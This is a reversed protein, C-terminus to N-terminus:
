RGQAQRFERIANTHRNLDAQYLGFLGQRVPVKHLYDTPFQCWYGSAMETYEIAPLGDELPLLTDCAQNRVYEREELPGGFAQNVRIMGNWSAFSVAAGLLLALAPIVANPVAAPQRTTKLAYATALAAFVGIMAHPLAYSRSWEAWAERVILGDVAAYGVLAAGIVLVARTRPHKALDFEIADPSGGSYREGFLGAEELVAWLPAARMDTATSTPGGVGPRDEIWDTPRLPIAAAGFGKRWLRVVGFRQLVSVREIDDWRCTWGGLPGLLFKLPLGSDMRMGQADITLRATAAHRREVWLSVPIFLIMVVMELGKGPESLVKPLAKLLKDQLEFERTVLGIMVIMAVAIISLLMTETKRSRKPAIRFIRSSSIM